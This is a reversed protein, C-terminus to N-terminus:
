PLWFCRKSPRQGQLASAAPASAKHAKRREKIAAAANGTARGGSAAAMTAAEGFVPV